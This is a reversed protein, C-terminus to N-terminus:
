YLSLGDGIDLTEHNSDRTAYWSRQALLGYGMLFAHM